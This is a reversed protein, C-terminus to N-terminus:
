HKWNHQPVRCMLGLSLILSSWGTHGASPTLPVYMYEGMVHERRLSSRTALFLFWSQFFTTRHSIWLSIQITVLVNWLAQVKFKSKTKHAELVFIYYCIFGTHDHCYWSRDWQCWFVSSQTRTAWVLHVCWLVQNGEQICVRRARRSDAKNQTIFQCLHGREQLSVFVLLPTPTHPTHPHPPTLHPSPLHSSHSHIHIYICATVMYMYINRAIELNRQANESDRSQM